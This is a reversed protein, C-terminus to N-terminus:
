FHDAIINGHSYSFGFILPYGLESSVISFLLAVDSVIMFSKVMQPEVLKVVLVVLSNRNVM